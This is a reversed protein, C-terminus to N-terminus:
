SKPLVFQQGPYILDPNRIQDRNAGYITVYRMGEGYVRRAIVWLNNGRRVVYTGAATLSGAKAFEFPAAIRKVVAGDGGLEDLRLEATGPIQRPPAALSWKGAADATATGLLDTGAYVAIRAGPDAHGSLNLRKGAAYEAMDLALGPRSGAAADPLQLVRGPTEADGPLLVALSKEPAARPAVSLAVVDPSRRVEGSRGTAEVALQRDGPPIPAAPVLVWEGRADATADGLPKGGDVVTVHDGPQARGAIVAQGQPTVTVVDFSPPKPPAPEPRPAAQAAAVPPPAPQAASRAPASPGSVQWGILAAAVILLVAAVGSSLWLFARL